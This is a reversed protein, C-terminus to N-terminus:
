DLKLFPYRALDERAWLSLGARNDVTDVDIIADPDEFSIWGPTGRAELAALIAADLFQEEDRSSMQAHFGRRHMRVHFSKGALRPVWELAIARAQSEFGERDQFTFSAEAPMVRSVMTLLDPVNTVMASLRDLFARLDAVKLLIVNYYGSRKVQGFQSFIQCARTFDDGQVTVVVNWEFM